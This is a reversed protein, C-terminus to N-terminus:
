MVVQKLYFAQNSRTQDVLTTILCFNRSAAFASIYLAILTHAPKRNILPIGGPAPYWALRNIVQEMNQLSIQFQKVNEEQSVECGFPNFEMFEYQKFLSYLRSCFLVEDNSSKFIATLQPCLQRIRESQVYELVNSIDAVMEDVSSFFLHNYLEIKPM